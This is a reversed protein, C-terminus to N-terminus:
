RTSRPPRFYDALFLAECRHEVLLFRLALEHVLIDLLLIKTPSSNIALQGSYPALRQYLKFPASTATIAPGRLYRSGARLLARPRHTGYKMLRKKTTMRSRDTAQIMYRTRTTSAVPYMVLLAQRLVAVPVHQNLSLTTCPPIPSFLSQEHSRRSRESRSWCGCTGSRGRSRAERGSLTSAGSRTSVRKSILCRSNRQM